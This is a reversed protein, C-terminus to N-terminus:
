TFWSRLIRNAKQEAPNNDRWKEVQEDSRILFDFSAYKTNQDNDGMHFPSRSLNEAALLIEDPSFHKLRAKLKSRRKPSIMIPKKGGLTQHIQLILNASSDLVEGEIEDTTQLETKTTTLSTEEKTTKTKTQKKSKVELPVLNKKDQFLQRTKESLTYIKRSFFNGICEIYGGERLLHLINSVYKTSVKLFSAIEARSKFYEQFNSMDALIAIATKPLDPSLLIQYPIWNGKTIQAEM